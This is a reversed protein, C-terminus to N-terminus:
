DGPQALVAMQTAPGSRCDRLSVNTEGLAARGLMERIVFGEDVGGTRRLYESVVDAATPGLTADGILQGVMRVHQGPGAFVCNGYDVNGLPDTDPVPVAGAPTPMAMFDAAAPVQAAEILRGQDAIYSALRLDSSKPTFPKKGLKITSYDM